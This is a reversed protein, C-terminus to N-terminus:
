REIWKNVRYSSPAYVFMRKGNTGTVWYGDPHKGGADNHRHVWYKFRKFTGADEEPKTLVYHTEAVKGAYHKRGAAGKVDGSPLLLIQRGSADTAAYYPLHGTVGRVRTRGELQPGPSRGMGVLPIKKDRPGPLEKVLIETPFPLGTFQRYRKLAARGGRLKLVEKLMAKYDAPMEEWMQASARIPQEDDVEGHHRNEAIM